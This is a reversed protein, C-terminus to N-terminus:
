GSPPLAPPSGAGAPTSLGARRPRGRWHWDRSHPPLPCTTRPPPPQAAPRDGPRPAPASSQAVLARPGAQSPHSTRCATTIPEARPPRKAPASRLGVAGPTPPHAPGASGRGEGDQGPPLFQQPFRRPPPKCGRSQGPQARTVAARASTGEWGGLQLGELAPERQWLAASRDPEQGGSAERAKGGRSSSPSSSALARDESQLSGRQAQQCGARSSGTSPCRPEPDGLLAAAAGPAWPPDQLARGASGTSPGQAPRAGLLSATM